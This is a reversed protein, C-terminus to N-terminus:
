PNILCFNYITSIRFKWSVKSVRLRDKTLAKEIQIVTGKVKKLQVIEKSDYLVKQSKFILCYGNAVLNPCYKVYDPEIRDLLVM